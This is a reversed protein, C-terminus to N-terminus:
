FKLWLYIEKQSLSKSRRSRLVCWAAPTRWHVLYQYLYYHRCYGSASGGFEFLADCDAKIVETLAGVRRVDSIVSGWNWDWSGGFGFRRFVRANEPKYIIQLKTSGQAQSQSKPNGSQPPMVGARETGHLIRQSFDFGDQDEENAV